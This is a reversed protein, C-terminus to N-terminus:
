EEQQLLIKLENRGRTLRMSVASASLKLIRSIDKIRYGEFYHLHLVIRYKEPVEKLAALMHIPSDTMSSAPENTIIDDFPVCLRVAGSKLLDKCANATMSMLYSKEKGKSIYLKRQLLKLFVNQVIDEADAYSGIYSYAFKFINDAYLDYLQLIEENKM